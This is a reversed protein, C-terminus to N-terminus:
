FGSAIVSDFKAIDDTRAAAFITSVINVIQTQEAAQTKARSERCLCERFCQYSGLLLWVPASTHRFLLCRRQCIQVVFRNSTRPMPIDPPLEHWILDM